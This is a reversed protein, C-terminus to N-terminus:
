QPPISNRVQLESFISFLRNEFRERSFTEAARRADESPSKKISEDIMTPIDEVNQWRFGIQDNVIEKPGGSDHVVPLCSASMAEIVTIGFHEGNMLHLYVKAEGLYKHYLDKPPDLVITGNEPAERLLKKPYEM